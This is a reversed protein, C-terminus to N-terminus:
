LLYGICEEGHCKPFPRIDPTIQIETTMTLKSRDDPGQFSVEIFGGRFGNYSPPVDLMWTTENLTEVRVNHWKIPQIQVMDRWYPSVSDKLARENEMSSFDYENGVIEKIDSYILSEMNSLTPEAEFNDSKSNTPWDVKDTKVRAWRWDRRTSNDTDAIWGNVLSAQTDSQLIIKIHNKEDTYRSFKLNPLHYKKQVSIYLARITHIISPSSLAQPPIMAHEANPLLRVYTKGPMEDFWNYSDDPQFFEDGTASIVIKPM